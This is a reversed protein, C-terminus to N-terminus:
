SIAKQLLKLTIYFTKKIVVIKKQGILLVTCMLEVLVLTMLCVVKQSIQESLNALKM